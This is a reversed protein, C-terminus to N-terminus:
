DIRIDRVKGKNDYKIIVLYSLFRSQFYYVDYIGYINEKESDKIWKKNEEHTDHRWYKIDDAIEHVQNRDM